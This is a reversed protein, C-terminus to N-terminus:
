LHAFHNGTFSGSQLSSLAVLINGTTATRIKTKRTAVPRNYLDVKAVVRAQIISIFHHLCKIYRSYVFNVKNLDNEIEAIIQRELNKIDAIVEPTLTTVSNCYILLNKCSKKHARIIYLANKAITQEPMGLNLQGKGSLGIQYNNNSHESKLIKQKM